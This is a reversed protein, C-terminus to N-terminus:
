HLFWCEILKGDPGLLKYLSAKTKTPCTIETVKFLEYLWIKMYSFKKFTHAKRWEGIIRRAVKVMDGIRLKSFKRDNEALLKVAQAKIESRANKITTIDDRAHIKASIQHTTTHLNTVIKQLDKNNIKTLNWQMM